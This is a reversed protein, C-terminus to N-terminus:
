LTIEVEIKVTDNIPVFLLAPREVSFDSLLIEFSGKVLPITEKILKASFVVPKSKGKINLDGTIKYNLEKDAHTSAVSFIVEKTEPYGLVELMHSDRNADGTKMNLLSCKVSFPSSITPIEKNGSLKLSEVKPENCIGVVKRWPHTVYFKISISKIGELAKNDQSFINGCFLFLLIVIINKKL